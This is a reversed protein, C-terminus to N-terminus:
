FASQFVTTSANQDPSTESAMPAGSPQSVARASRGTTDTKLLYPGKRAIHIKTAAPQRHPQRLATPLLHPVDGATQEM